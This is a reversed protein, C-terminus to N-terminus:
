KRRRAEGEKGGTALEVVDYREIKLYRFKFAEGQSIEVCIEGVWIAIPKFRVIAQLADSVCVGGGIQADAGDKIRAPRLTTPAAFM